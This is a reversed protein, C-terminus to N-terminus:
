HLVMQVKLRRDDVRTIQRCDKRWITECREKLTRHCGARARSKWANCKTPSMQYSSEASHVTRDRTYWVPSVMM